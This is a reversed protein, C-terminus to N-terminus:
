EEERSDPSRDLRRCCWKCVQNPCEVGIWCVFFGNKRGGKRWHPPSGTCLCLHREISFSFSTGDSLFICRDSEASFTKSLM